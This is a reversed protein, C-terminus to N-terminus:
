CILSEVQSRVGKDFINYLHESVKKDFGPLTTLDMGWFKENKLIKEVLGDLSEKSLDCDKYAEKFTELVDKDDKTDDGRYFAILAAMSFTLVKPLSNKRKYYELISPLVRTKYKSVSNLAISLLFHKIYPNAFRDFVADAFSKLDEYDLDLTPIVEEFLAIELYKHFVDDAVMEGVTEKGSLYAALVSATHAGNLIRVKRMKYPTADETWVVNLGAKEFPLEESLFGPGEIVWFHFIEGTDLLKDVYGLEETLSEVEDKPYGTVIRDVLTNTFINDEEVWDVFEKELNWKQAFKLVCRKLESGNNDILECPIFVLGKSKDGNFHKYRKYLFATVKGPFSVQPKDDLNDSDLYVIGAETTNSVVFRLDENEACEMYTEYDRYPNIGRSISTVVRKKCVEKGNEMGRLFLTYLGDQENLTDILGGNLPQVVVISGNFLEKENIIDVMEDVFARLFNGEGFQLIKEKKTSGIKLKPDLIDKNLQKM